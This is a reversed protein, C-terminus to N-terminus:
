SLRQAGLLHASQFQREVDDAPLDLGHRFLVLVHRGLHLALELFWQARERTSHLLAALNHLVGNLLQELDLHLLSLQNVLNTSGRAPGVEFYQQGACVRSRYSCSHRLIM